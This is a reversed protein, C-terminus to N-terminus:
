KRRAGRAAEVEAAYREGIRASEARMAEAVAAAGASALAERDRAQKELETRVLPDSRLREEAGAATLDVEDRWVVIADVVEHARSGAAAACAAPDRAGAATLAYVLCAPADAVFSPTSQLAAESEALERIHAILQSPTNARGGAARWAAELAEDVIADERELRLVPVLREACPSHPASLPSGGCRTVAM